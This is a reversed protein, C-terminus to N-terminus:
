TQGKEFQLFYGITFTQPKKETKTQTQKSTKLKGGAEASLTSSM